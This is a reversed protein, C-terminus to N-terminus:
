AFAPRSLRSQELMLRIDANQARYILGGFEASALTDTWASQAQKYWRAALAITVQRILPPIVTSYGWRATVTVTPTVIARKDSDSIHGNTWHSYQGDATLYIGNYPLRDWEPETHSGSFPIWDTAALATYDSIVGTKMSVAQIAVCDDIYLWADGRGAYRRVTYIEQAVFGDPRNCYSDILQSVAEIVINLSADDSAGSAGYKEIQTRLEQPTCYGM